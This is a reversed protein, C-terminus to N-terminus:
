FYKSHEMKTYSYAQYVPISVLSQYLNSYHCINLLFNILFTYHFLIITIPAITDINPVDRPHDYKIPIIAKTKNVLICLINPVTSLGISVTTASFICCSYSSSYCLLNSLPLKNLLTLINM